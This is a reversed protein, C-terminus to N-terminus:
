ILESSTFNRAYSAACTSIAAPTPQRCPKPPLALSAPGASLRGRAQIEYMQLRLFASPIRSPAARRQCECLM